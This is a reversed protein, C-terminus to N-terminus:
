TRIVVEYEDGLGLGLEVGDMDMDLPPSFFTYHPTIVVESCGGSSSM